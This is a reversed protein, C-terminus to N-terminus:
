ANRLAELTLLYDCQKCKEFTRSKFSDWSAAFIGASLVGGAYAGCLALNVSKEKLVHATM